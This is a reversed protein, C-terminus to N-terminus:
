FVRVMSAMCPEGEIDLIFAEHHMSAGPLTVAVRLMGLLLEALATSVMITDVRGIHAYRPDGAFKAVFAAHGPALREEINVDDPIQITLNRMNNCEKTKM